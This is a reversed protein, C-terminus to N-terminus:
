LLQPDYPYLAVRQQISFAGIFDVEEPKFLLHKNFFAEAGTETYTSSNSLEVGNVDMLSYYRDEIRLYLDEDTYYYHVVMGRCELVWGVAAIVMARSSLHNNLLLWVEESIGHSDDYTALIKSRLTLSMDPVKTSQSITQEHYYKAFEIFCDRILIDSM